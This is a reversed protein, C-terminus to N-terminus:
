EKMLDDQLKKGLQRLVRSIKRPSLASKVAVTAAQEEAGTMRLWLVELAKCWVLRGSGAADTRQAPSMMRWMSAAFEVAENSAGYKQTETLWLPLFMRWPEQPKSENVPQCQVLTYHPGAMM